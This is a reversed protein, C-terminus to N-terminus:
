AHPRDRIDSVVGALTSDGPIRGGLLYAALAPDALTLLERFAHKQAESARPYVDELYASLLIDLERM